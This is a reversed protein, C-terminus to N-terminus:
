IICGCIWAGLFIPVDYMRVFFLFYFVIRAAVSATTVQPASRVLSLGCDRGLAPGRAFPVMLSPPGKLLLRNSTFGRWRRVVAVNVGSRLCRPRRLDPFIYIWTASKFAPALSLRLHQHTSQRSPRMLGSMTQYKGQTDTLNSEEKM